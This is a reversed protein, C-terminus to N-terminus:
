KKHERSVDSRNRRSDIEASVIDRIKNIRNRPSSKDQKQRRELGHDALLYGGIGSAATPLTRGGSLAAGLVSGSVGGLLVGPTSRRKIDEVGANAGYDHMLRQTTHLQDDSLGRAFEEMNGGPSRRRELTDELSEMRRKQRQIDDLTGQEKHKKHAKLGLGAGAALAGIGAAPGAGRVGRSFAMMGPLAGLLGGHM